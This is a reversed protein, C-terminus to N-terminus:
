YYRFGHLDSEHTVTMRSHVASPMAKQYRSNSQDFLTNNSNVARSPAFGGTTMPACGQLLAAAGLALGITAIRIVKTM